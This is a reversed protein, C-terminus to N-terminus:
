SVTLGTTGGTAYLDVTMDWRGDDPCFFLGGVEKTTQELLTLSAPTTSTKFTGSWSAAEYKCTVGGATMDYVINGGCGTITANDSGKVATLCLKSTFLYTTSGLQSSCPAGGANNLVLGMPIELGIETGTNKTVTGQLHAIECELSFGGTFKTAGKSKGTISSGAALLKGEETLAPSASAAPSGVLAAFATFAMCAMIFKKHM